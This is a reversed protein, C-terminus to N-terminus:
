FQVAAAAAEDDIGIYIQTTKVSEHGLLYQVLVIDKTRGYVETAFTARLDHSSVPSGNAGPVGARLATAAIANRAGSNSLPVLRGESPLDKVIKLLEPSVPVEREKEGKGLVRLAIGNGRKIVDERTIAVTESVRLGALGGLAIAGIHGSRAVQLMARIGDIGDPMPHPKRQPIPASKYEALPTTDIGAFRCYARASALRMKVTAAADGRRRHAHIWNVMLEANGPSANAALGRSGAWANFDGMMSTYKAVTPAALGRATLHSEFGHVDLHVSRFM